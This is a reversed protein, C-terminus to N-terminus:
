RGSRRPPALRLAGGRDRVVRETTNGARDVAHDNSRSSRTRDASDHVGAHDPRDLKRPTNGRTPRMGRGDRSSRATLDDSATSWTTYPSASSPESSSMSRTESEASRRGGTASTSGAYSRTTITSSSGAGICSGIRGRARRRAGGGTPRDQELHAAGAAREPAQRGALGLAGLSDTEDPTSPRPPHEPLDLHRRLLYQDAAKNVASRSWKSRSSARKSANSAPAIRTAPRPVSRPEAREWLEHM